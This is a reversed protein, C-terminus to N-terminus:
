IYCFYQVVTGRLEYDDNSLTEFMSRYQFSAEYSPYEGETQMM